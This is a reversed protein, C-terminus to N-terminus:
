GTGNSRGAQGGTGSDALQECDKKTILGGPCARICAGCNICLDEDVKIMTELKYSPDM